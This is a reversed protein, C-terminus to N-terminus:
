KSPTQINVDIKQTGGRGFLTHRFAFLAILVVIVFIAVVAVVGANGGGGSDDAM